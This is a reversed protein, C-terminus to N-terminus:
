ELLQDARAHEEAVVDGDGGLRLEPEARALRVVRDKADEPTGAHAAPQDQVALLPDPAARCALDAVNDHVRAAVFAAAAALAAHLGVGAAALHLGLSAM